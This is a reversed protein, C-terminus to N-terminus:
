HAVFPLPWNVCGIPRGKEVAALYEDLVGKQLIYVMAAESAEASVTAWAPDLAHQALWGCLHHELASPRLTYIVQRAQEPDEALLMVLKERQRAARMTYAVRRGAEDRWMLSDIGGLRWEGMTAGWLWGFDVDALEAELRETLWCLDAPQVPRADLGVTSEPLQEIDIAVKCFGHTRTQYGYRPYYASHGLLFAFGYGEKEGLRHGYALLQGGIGQRQFEPVVAVPGVALSWMTTGMLRQRVPTFLAHGVMEEQHWATVSFRRDYLPYVRRMDDVIQGEDAHRFARCNVENIAEEDGPREGRIEISTM